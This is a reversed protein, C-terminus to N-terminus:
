SVFFEGFFEGAELMALRSLTQSANTKFISVTGKLLLFLGRTTEGEIFINAKTKKARLQGLGYIDSLEDKTLNAFFSIRQLQTAGWIEDNFLNQDFEKIPTQLNDNM